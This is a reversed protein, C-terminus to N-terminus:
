GRFQAAPMAVGITHPGATLKLRFDTTSKGPDVRAGDLTIELTVPEGGAGVGLGASRARIKFAYEADLPFTYDFSIGGRTGLPLGEIHATQSLDGPVRWTNTTPAPRPIALRLAASRPPQASTANSCRRRCAWHTPSIISVRARITPHCSRPFTSMSPSCIACRM